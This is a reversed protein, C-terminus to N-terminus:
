VLPNFDLFKRVAQEGGGPALPSIELDWGDVDDTDGGPNEEPVAGLECKKIFYAKNNTGDRLQLILGFQEDTGEILEFIGSDDDTEAVSGGRLLTLITAKSYDVPRLSITPKPPQRRTKYPAGSTNNWVDVESIDQDVSIQFGAKIGGFPVWPSALSPSFIDVPLATGAPARWADGDLWLRALDPDAHTSM